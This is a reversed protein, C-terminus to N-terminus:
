RYQLIIEYKKERNNRIIVVTAKQEPKLTRLKMAYEKLNNIMSNAIRVIIDGKKLGYKDAAGGKIVMGIKVGKGNFSFDPMIGLSASKGQSKIQKKQESNEVKDTNGTFTLPKKRSSLYIIAEKAITAIRIMGKFDIKDITDTPRHYDLHPGSFIQIAPIGANIFSKQDSSDIDQLVIDTKIGTTFGIGMFIFKWEKASTSGLIMPNKNKLRGVTDLNIIGIIKKVNFKKFNEVFYKSGLLGAEEASFAVFIIRREPNFSKSFYKALELMVSIGSANDDAGFHIKGENGKRVDPWGLGLHDYHACVVISQDEYEKNNGEVYGIINRIKLVGKKNFKRNFEQFYGKDGAPRLGYERFRDRIYESAIDLEKTGLGRGKLKESALFKIHKKFDQENFTSEPAALPKRLFRKFKYNGNKYFLYVLPSNKVKWIGKLNNVSDKGVFSLYSYKGYHFIKRLLSDAMENKTISLFGIFSNNNDKNKEVWLVSNRDLSLIKENIKLKNDNFIM